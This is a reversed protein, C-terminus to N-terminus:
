LSLIQDRLQHLTGSLCISEMNGAVRLTTVRHTILPPRSPSVSPVVPVERLGVAARNGSSPAAASADAGERSEASGKSGKEEHKDYKLM